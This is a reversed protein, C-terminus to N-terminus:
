RRSQDENTKRRELVEDIICDSRGTRGKGPATRAINVWAEVLDALTDDDHIVITDPHVMTM